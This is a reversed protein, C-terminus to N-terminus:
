EANELVSFNARRVYRLVQEFKDQLYESRHSVIFVNSNELTNICKLFEDIGNNDLSSDLTEDLILLNTSCSSKMRAIERWTFLLALDMRLKQGQSFSHYTRNDCGRNQIREEFNEDLKFTVFLDLDQMYKNVLRNITPLYQRIIAAKIGGDKLMVAAAEYYQSLELSSQKTRELRDLKTTLTELKKIQEQINGPEKKLDVQLKKINQNFGQKRVTLERQKAAIETLAENTKQNAAQLKIAKAQAEDLDAKITNYRVTSEQKITAMEAELKSIKIADIPM